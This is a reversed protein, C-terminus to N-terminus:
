TYKSTSYLRCSQTVPSQVEEAHELTVFGLVFSHQALAEKMGPITEPM